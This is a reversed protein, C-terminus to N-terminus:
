FCSPVSFDQHLPILTLIESGFMSMRVSNFHLIIRSWENVRSKVTNATYFAGLPSRKTEMTGRMKCHFLAIM